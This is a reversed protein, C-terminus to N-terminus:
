LVIPFTTQYSLTVSELFSINGNRAVPFASESQRSVEILNAEKNTPDNLEPTAIFKRPSYYWRRLLVDIRVMEKGVKIEFLRLNDLTRFSQKVIVKTEHEYTSADLLTFSLPNVAESTAESTDAVDLTFQVVANASKLDKYAIIDRNYTYALTITPM